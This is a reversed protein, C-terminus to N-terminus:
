VVAEPRTAAESRGRLVTLIQSLTQSDFTPVTRISRRSPFRRSQHFGNSIPGVKSDITLFGPPILSCKAMLPRIEQYSREELLKVVGPGPSYRGSGVSPILRGSSKGLVLTLM